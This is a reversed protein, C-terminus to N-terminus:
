RNTRSRIRMVIEAITPTYEGETSVEITPLDFQPAQYPEPTLVEGTKRYHAVRKDGHYFERDANELGRKLHRNAALMEDVTCIVITPSSLEVIKQMRSAWVHHQFAAEVVVSIKNALYHNVIEFFLESVIGNTNEPLRDHKVNHTNVYGEKIEDRSVVPLWLCEALQKSLTTKGAGPRGTVIVCQPKQNM